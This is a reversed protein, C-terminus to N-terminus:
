KSSLRPLGSNLYVQMKGITGSRFVWEGSAEDRRNKIEAWIRYDGSTEVIPSVFTIVGEAQERAIQGNAKPVDISVLVRAGKISAPSVLKASVLGVVRIEDLGVIKFMTEGPQVWEGRHKLVEVVVGGLTSKIQRRAIENNVAELQAAKVNVERAFNERELKRIQIEYRTREVTLELRRLENKSVTGPVRKNADLASQLEAQAVELTKVTAQYEADSDAKAQSVAMEYRASKEKAIADSSDIKALPTEETVERGIIQHNLEVLVGAEPAPVDVKKFATLLCNKIEFSNEARSTAPAETQGVLALSLVLTAATTIM